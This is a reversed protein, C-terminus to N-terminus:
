YSRFLGRPLGVNSPEGVETFPFRRSELGTEDLKGDDFLITPSNLGKTITSVTSM